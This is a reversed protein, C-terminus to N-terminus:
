RRHTLTWATATILESCVRLRDRNRWHRHRPDLLDWDTSSREKAVDVLFRMCTSTTAHDGTGFAMDAPFRCLTDVLSIGLLSRALMM